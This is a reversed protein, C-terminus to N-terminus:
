LWVTFIIILSVKDNSFTHPSWSQAGVDIQPPDVGATPHRLSSAERPNTHTHQIDEYDTLLWDLVSLNDYRSNLHM